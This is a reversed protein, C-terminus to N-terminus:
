LGAIYDSLAKTEAGNFKAAQGKMIAKMGTGYTGDKYGNLANEIRKSDWGQIVASKGLAKKEGNAGHCGICGAYLAKGDITKAVVTDKVESASDKVISVVDKTKEKISDVTKTVNTKTSATVEEVSEKVQTIASKEVEIKPTEVVKTEAKLETQAEEKKSTDSCGIVLLSLLILLITRM